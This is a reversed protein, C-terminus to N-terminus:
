EMEFIDGKESLLIAAFRTSPIQSFLIVIVSTLPVALFMGVIGWIMGWFALSVIVAV